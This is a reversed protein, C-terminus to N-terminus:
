IWRSIGVERWGDMWRYAWGVGERRAGQWSVLPEGDEVHYLSISGDARGALFYSPQTPCFSLTTLPSSAHEYHHQFCRPTPLSESYRSRHLLEGLDNGLLLRFPLAHSRLPSPQFPFPLAKVPHSCFDSMAQMSDPSWYGRWSGEGGRRELREKGGRGRCSSQFRRAVGNGEGGRRVRRREAGM